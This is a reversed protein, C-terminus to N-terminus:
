NIPNFSVVKAPGVSRKGWLGVSNAQFASHILLFDALSLSGMTSKICPRMPRRGVAVCYLCRITTQDTSDEFQGVNQKKLM